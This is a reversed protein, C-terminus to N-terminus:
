PEGREVDIAAIHAKAEQKLMRELEEQEYDDGASDDAGTGYHKLIQESNVFRKAAPASDATCPEGRGGDEADMIERLTMPSGGHKAEGRATLQRRKTTRPKEGSLVVVSKGRESGDKNMATGGDDDLQLIWDIEVHEVPLVLCGDGELPHRFTDKNIAVPKHGHGMEILTTLAKHLSNVNM